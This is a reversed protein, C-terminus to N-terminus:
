GPSGGRRGAVLSPHPHGAARAQRKGLDWGKPAPSTPPISPLTRVPTQSPMQPVPHWHPVSHRHPYTHIQWQSPEREPALGGQARAGALHPQSALLFETRERAAWLGRSISDRSANQCGAIGPSREAWSLEWEQGLLCAQGMDQRLWEAGRWRWHRAPQLPGSSCCPPPPLFVTRISWAEGVRCAPCEPMGPRLLTQALNSSVGLGRAREPNYTHPPPSGLFPDWPEASGLSNRPGTPAM